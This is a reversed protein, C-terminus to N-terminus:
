VCLEIGELKGTVSELQMFVEQSSVFLGEFVPLSLDVHKNCIQM